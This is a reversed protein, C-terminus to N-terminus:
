TVNHGWTFFVMDQESISLISKRRIHAKVNTRHSAHVVISQRKNANRM